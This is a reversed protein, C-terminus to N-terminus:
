STWARLARPVAFRSYNSMGLPAGLAYIAGVKVLCIWAHNSRSRKLFRSIALLGSWEM